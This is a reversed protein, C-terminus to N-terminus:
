VLQENHERLWGPVDTPRLPTSWLFGQGQATGLRHLEALQAASEVGEGIVGLNLDRALAVIAGVIAAAHPDDGGLGDIFSRDIKLLHVPLKQLYGLSSYGTGFDDISLRVGLARLSVLNRVALDVDGMVMSETVELHVAGPDIGTRDLTEAVVQVFQTDRLQRTSLNVAMSLEAAGPVERRWRQLQALAEGLVWEGILLIMGTEEAVPIFEAPSLWGRDPHEWRVLAEFGMVRENAVDVIPQYVVRLEDRDLARGLQSEIDLRASARLQMADNFVVVRDRGLEKAQYMAVDSKRLLIHADDDDGALVVGISVTVFVEHGDVWFPEKTMAIIRDAVRQARDVTTSDCVIVFEDGGFRAFTDTDRLEAQMRKVLQVLLSDGAAHGLGDNVVKFQDVDLFLVGVQRGAPRALALSEDIHDTLRTRNVLGTLPDHFAQHALLAETEKRETVDQLQLYFYSPAQDDGRVLSAFEHVWIVTGDARLYRRETQVDDTVGNLIRLTMSEDDGRDLPHLFDPTQMGLIEAAPRGLMQCLAPNIRRLRGDLDAIGTGIPSREFGAFAMEQAEVLRARSAIAEARNADAEARSAEAEAQQRKMETIDRAIGSIGTLQGPGGGLASLNLSIDLTTGDRRIGWTEFASPQQLLAHMAPGTTEAMIPLVRGAGQGIMEGARYGFMREAASNWTLVAGDISCAIIADSSSEVLSSLTRMETEIRQRDSIDRISSYAFSGSPTMIPALSIEVAFESGDRRRGFLELGSGMQRTLPARSYAARRARHDQRFREPLLVEITQGLLEHRPYGFMLETQQNVLVISGASDVIVVGDPASDILKLLPTGSHFLEGVPRVRARQSIAGDDVHEFLQM